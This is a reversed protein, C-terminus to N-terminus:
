PAKHLFGPLPHASHNPYDRRWEEWHGNHFHEQPQYNIKHHMKKSGDIWYGLYLWPLAHRRTQEIQWLVTYVGLSRRTATPEFFTYVASLGDNLHDTVAIALLESNLRFEVFSTDCWSSTLFHLYDEDTSHDMEGGPHRASIYRRYLALHEKSFVTEQVTVSLDANRKLIRRHSRHAVFRNVPVRVPICAACYPCRPSYIQEGSRRFGCQSLHTYLTRTKIFRPDVYATTAEKDKLYPCSRTPTTFLPLSVTNM